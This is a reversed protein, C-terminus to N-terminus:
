NVIIFEIVSVQFSVGSNRYGLNIINFLFLSLVPPPPRMKSLLFFQSSKTYRDAISIKTYRDATELKTSRDAISIKTYRDATALKTDRDAISIKTYRDATAL